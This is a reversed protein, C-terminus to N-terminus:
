ELVGQGHRNNEAQANVQKVEEARAIMADMNQCFEDMAVTLMM